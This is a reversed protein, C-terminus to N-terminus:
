NASRLRERILRRLIKPHTYFPVVLLAIVLGLVALATYLIAQTQTKALPGSVLWAPALLLVAYVIFSVIRVRRTRRSFERSELCEKLVAESKGPPLQDLEPIKVPFKFM